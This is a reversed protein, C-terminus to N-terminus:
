IAVCRVSLGTEKGVGATDEPEGWFVLLRHSHTASSPTSSWYFATWDPLLHTVSLIYGSRQMLWASYLGDTGGVAANLAAFEGNNGTPLRWGSPCISINTNPAPSDSESCASTAQGGMAGCWNYFYGYQRGEIDTSTSPATPESTVNAGNAPIYFSAVTFTHPSAGGNFLTKADGYTNTGGGAYALNTLMWCKGDALKQVWYTHNDRADVARTRTTPCNADTITQIM